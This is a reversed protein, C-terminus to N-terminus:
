DCARELAEAAPASASQLPKVPFVFGLEVIPLALFLQVLVQVNDVHDLHHFAESDHLLHEEILILEEEEVKLLTIDNKSICVLAINLLLHLM